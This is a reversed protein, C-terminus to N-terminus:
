KDSLKKTNYLGFNARKGFSVQIIAMNRINEGM